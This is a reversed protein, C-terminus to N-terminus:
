FYMDYDQREMPNIQTRPQIPTPQGQNFFPGPMQNQYVIPILLQQNPYIFDDKDLNNMALIWKYDTNFNQGIRYPNDGQKVTYLVIEGVRPFGQRKYQNYFDM